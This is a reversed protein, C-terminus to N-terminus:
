YFRSSGADLRAVDRVSVAVGVHLSRGDWEVAFGLFIAAVILAGNTVYPEMGNCRGWHETVHKLQYSSRNPTKQKQCQRLFAMATAVQEAALGRKNRDLMGFTGLQPVAAKVEAIALEAEGMGNNRVLRLAPLKLKRTM